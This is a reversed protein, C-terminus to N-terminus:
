SSKKGRINIRILGFAASVNGNTPKGLLTLVDTTGFYMQVTHGACLSVGLPVSTGYYTTTAIGINFILVKWVGLQTGLAFYPGALNGIANNLPFIIDSSLAVRKSIQYAAGVRLKTPLMMTVDSNKKFDIVKNSDLKDIAKGINNLGFIATDSITFSSQHWTIAGIDTASVGFTWKKYTASLGLDAALGRGPNTASLPTFAPFNQQLAYDANIGENDVNGNFYTEGWIYKLGIGGYVKFANSDAKQVTDNGQGLYNLYRVNYNVYYDDNAKGSGGIEFLQRGFDLNFERYQYLSLSTGILKRLATSDSIHGKQTILTAGSPSISFNSVLKDNVSIAFTGIKNVKLSFALWNVDAFLNIGHNVNLIQKATNPQNTDGSHMMTNVGKMSLGASQIGVGLNLFSFSVLDTSEWGMNAPNVGIAEWDNATATIAGSKASGVPLVYEVQSWLILPSLFLICYLFTSKRM